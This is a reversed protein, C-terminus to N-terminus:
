TLGQSGGRCLRPAEKPLSSATQRSVACARAVKAQTVGRALMRMARRRRAELEKFDRKYRKTAM